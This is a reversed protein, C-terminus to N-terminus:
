RIHVNRIREPEAIGMGCNATRFFNDRCRDSLKVRCSRLVLTTNEPLLVARDLSWWDREPEAARHRPPIVVIGDGDRNRVANELIENDDAGPFLNADVM